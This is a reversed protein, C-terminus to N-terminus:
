FPELSAELAPQFQLSKLRQALYTFRQDRRTSTVARALAQPQHVIVCLQKARTLATYILNRQLLAYHSNLVPFVACPFESGQAKHISVAYALVLEHLDGYEYEVQRVEGSEAYRVVVVGDDKRIDSVLGVDGNFVEKDYNNKVQMVKDGRRLQYAGVSIAPGGTDPNLLDQLKENMASVGAPGRHIPSMVQVDLLPDLHFRQPIRRGVVETMVEQARVADPVAILYLDGEGAFQPVEGNRVLHAASTIRSGEAQRFLQNLEVSSVTGSALLDALVNGAGVAPLQDSDGVLVLHSDDSIAKLLHNFLLVDVMSVEDVVVVRSGLPNDENNAFSNDAPQYGL